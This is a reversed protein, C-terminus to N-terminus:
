SVSEAIKEGFYCVYYFYFGTQFVGIFNKIASSVTLESETANLIMFCLHLATTICYSLIAIEILKLFETTFKILRNHLDIKENLKEITQKENSKKYDNIIEVFDIALSKFMIALKGITFMMFGEITIVSCSFFHTLIVEYIYVISFYGDYPDFPYYLSHQLKYHTTGKTFYTVIITILPAINFLHLSILTTIIMSEVFRKSKKVEIKFVNENKETITSTLDNSEKNLEYFKRENKLITIMIMLASFGTLIFVLANTVHIAIRLHVLAFITSQILVLICSILGIYKMFSGSKYVKENLFSLGISKLFFEIIKSKIEM